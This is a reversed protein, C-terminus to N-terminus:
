CYAAIVAEMESVTWSPSSIYITVIAHEGGRCLPSDRWAVSLGAVSRHTGGRRLSGRWVTTARAGKFHLVIQPQSM